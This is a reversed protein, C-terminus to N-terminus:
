KTACHCGVQGRGTINEYNEFCKEKSEYYSFVTQLWWAYSVQQWTDELLQEEKERMM